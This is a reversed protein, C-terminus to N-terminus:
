FLRCQAKTVKRPSHRIQWDMVICLCEMRDFTSVDAAMKRVKPLSKRYHVPMPRWSKAPPRDHRCFVPELRQCRRPTQEYIYVYIYLTYIYIYICIPGIYIYIHISVKVLRKRRRGDLHHRRTEGHCGLTRQWHGDRPQHWLQAHWKEAQWAMEDKSTRQTPNGDGDHEVHKKNYPDRGKADCAWVM